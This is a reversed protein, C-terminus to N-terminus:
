KGKKRIVKWVKGFGGKGICYNYVFKDKSVAQFVDSVSQCTSLTPLLKGQINDIPFDTTKLNNHGTNGM